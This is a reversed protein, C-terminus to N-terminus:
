STSPTVGSAESSIKQAAPAVGEGVGVGDTGGDGVGVGVGDTGGDGVGLTVGDTVGM